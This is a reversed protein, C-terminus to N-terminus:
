KTEELRAIEQQVLRLAKWVMGGAIHDLVQAQWGADPNIRPVALYQAHAGVPGHTICDDLYWAAKCLEQLSDDKRGCRYVYKFASGQSFGMVRTYEICEAYVGDPYTKYHAPNIPDSM